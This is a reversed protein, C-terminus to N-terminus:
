RSREWFKSDPGMGSVRELKGLSVKRLRDPLLKVSFIGGLKSNKWLSFVKSRVALRKFM